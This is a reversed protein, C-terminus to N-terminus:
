SRHWLVAHARASSAARCLSSSFTFSDGAMNTQMWPLEIWAPNNSLKKLELGSLLKATLPHRGHRPLLHHLQGAEHHVIPDVGMDYTRHKCRLHQFEAALLLRLGVKGTAPMLPNTKIATAVSALCELYRCGLCVDYSMQPLGDLNKLICTCQSIKTSEKMPQGTQPKHLLRRVVYPMDLKM